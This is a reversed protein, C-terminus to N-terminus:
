RVESKDSKLDWLIKGEHQCAYPVLEDRTPNQMGVRSATAVFLDVKAVGREMRFKLFERLLADHDKRGTLISAPADDAVVAVFDHDSSPGANGRARSGILYLREYGFRALRESCFEHTAAVTSQDFM